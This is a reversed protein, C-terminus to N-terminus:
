QGFVRTDPNFAVWAFWFAILSPIEEGDDGFVRATRAQPDFELRLVQGGVTDEIVRAPNRDLATFPYAMSEGAITVGIVQEKPHLRADAHRVPFMLSESEVYDSYPDRRYDRRHGTDPSLVKTDPHRARWDSWTTHATPLFALRAGKMPGSVAESMIQSWLSETQRDYLLVDSNYLLGSVGLTLDRGDVRTSFVMGTGCLPCFTVAIPEGGIRDNVVEHWNLIAIPYARAIGSRHFGLVRDDPKLFDAEAAAVFRPQDISPIGDRPPGGHHIEDIPVSAGTLDFGNKQVAWASLSIVALLAALPVSIWSRNM